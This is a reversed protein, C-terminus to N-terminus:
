PRAPPRGPPVTHRRPAAAPAPAPSKAPGALFASPVCRPCPLPSGAPLPSYRHTLFDVDAGAVLHAVSVGPAVGVLVDLALLDGFRLRCGQAAAAHLHLQSGEAGGHGLAAGLGVGAARVDVVADVGVGAVALDHAGPQEAVGDGALPVICALRHKRLQGRQGRARGLADLGIGPQVLHAHGVRGTHVALALKVVGGLTGLPDHLVGSINALSNSM